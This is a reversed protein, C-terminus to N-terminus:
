TSRRRLLPLGLGAALALLATSSPEPVGRARVMANGDSMPFSFAPMISSVDIDVGLQAYTAGQFVGQDTAIPSPGGALDRVIVAALFNGNVQTPAISYDIFTNTDPSSIVGGSSALLVLDDLVGDNDPDDYLLVEIPTGAPAHGPDLPTGWAVSLSTIREGGPQATFLNGILGDVGAPAGRILEATGDDVIYDVDAVVSGAIFLVCALSAVFRMM